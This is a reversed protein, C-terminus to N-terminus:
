SVKALFESLSKNTFTELTLSPSFFVIAGLSAGWADWNLEANFFRLVTECSEGIAIIDLKAHVRCTNAIIQQFVSEMHRFPDENGPIDNVEPVYKTGTHVLSPLPIASSADVTMAEKGEHWWYLQGMNALIIGPSHSGESSTPFSRIAEVVSLM